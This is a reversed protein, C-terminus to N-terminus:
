LFMCLFILCGGKDQRLLPGERAGRAPRDRAARVPIQLATPDVPLPCACVGHLPRVRVYVSYRICSITVLSTNVWIIPTILAWLTVNGNTTRSGRERVCVSVCWANLSGRHIYWATNFSLLPSIWLGFVLVDTIFAFGLAPIPPLSPSFSLILVYQFILIDIFYLM